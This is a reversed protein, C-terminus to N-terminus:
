FKPCAFNYQPGRERKNICGNFILSLEYAGNGNTAPTFSSVNIDYSIGLQMKSWELGVYPSIADGYRYWGGLYFITSKQFEKDYGPNLVFGVAAGIVVESAAAQSQYLGSAYLRVNENLDFSGGISAAYRAHIRHEKTSDSNAKFFTEVPQTIHYYSFGAYATAHENIRGSYMLGANFDPYTLDTNSIRETTQYEPLGSGPNYQDEFSLKNFDISKQVLVGQIGLSLTHNKDAGLAKHYAASIGININTLAGIGSRDYLGLIGIGLADGNNLKGKLTAMDYSFSATTYPNNSVSSWQSRYNAAVRLDCQVLGTLAPNLTLPSAFYQTFHADQAFVSSTMALAASVGLLIKKM